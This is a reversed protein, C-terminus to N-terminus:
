ADETADPPPAFQTQKVKLLPDDPKLGLMVEDEVQPLAGYYRLAANLREAQSFREDDIAFHPYRILYAKKERSEREQRKELAEFFEKQLAVDEEFRKKREEEAQAGAAMQKTADLLLEHREMSAQSTDGSQQFARQVREEPSYQRPYPAGPVDPEPPMPLYDSLQFPDPM